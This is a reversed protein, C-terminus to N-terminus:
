IVKSHAGCSSTRTTTHKITVSDITSSDQCFPISSLLPSCHHSQSLDIDEELDWDQQFSSSEIVIDREVFGSQNKVCSCTDNLSCILM